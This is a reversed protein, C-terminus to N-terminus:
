YNRSITEVSTLRNSLDKISVLLNRSCTESLKYDTEQYLRLVSNLEVGFTNKSIIVMHYLDYLFIM